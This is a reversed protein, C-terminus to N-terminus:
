PTPSCIGALQQIGGARYQILVIQNGLHEPPFFDQGTIKRTPAGPDTGYLEGELGHYGAANPVYFIPSYM